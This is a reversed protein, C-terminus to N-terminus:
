EARVARRSNEFSSIHPMFGKPYLEVCSRRHRRKNGSFREIDREGSLLFRFFNVGKYRCTQYISLLVLFDVLGSETLTGVTRKRYYAFQKVANEANNNNWPVGDYRLFTFLKERHRVLRDRLSVAANSRYSRTEIAGFFQRVGREHKLLRRRKLGHEDVTAVIERLLVGFPQTISRLEDDYPHHLLDNNIDRILHILCKQQPCQFADYGSYFDSVLVGSFGALSDKLFESERNPRHMYVVEELNAPVWVYAKGSRLKVETEDVHVVVGSQIRSLLGRYTSRYYRSMLQKIMLIENDHVHIGFFERIMEEITAASLRHAVHQYMAWSKLGHRHKDLREYQTPVFVSHCARCQHLKARYDIVKRRIGGPTIVLDFVRKKRPKKTGRETSVDKGRVLDTSKCTPCRSCQLEIAQSARLRRNVHKRYHKRATAVSRRIPGSTRVYVHERQYDFYACKNVQAYDPHVFNVEGWTRTGALRDLTEVHTVPLTNDATNPLEMGARCTGIFDTVRKLALCDELNYRILKQKWQEDRGTEWERRWVISQLGSANKETWVCGLCAGVDKLGNSYCPFYFHSYVISLTNELMSIARDVQRKRGRVRNRMRKLFAKEYSGYCFLRFDEYQGIVDLFQMFIHSEQEKNDAWFSHRVESAGDVVIAGILYVYGDDPLSEVDFYVNVRALTLDPTGFVYITQDRIAMAQLEHYRRKSRQVRRGKRRPRFTYALQTLNFIGKRNLRSIEKEGLSRLLSLSDEEVAQQHCRQRFRCHACHNNLLLKPASDADQLDMLEDALQRAGGDDSPLRVTTSRCERGYYFVGKKLSRGQLDALLFAYLELLRRQETRIGSVGLCLVPVYHFEGLQSRGPTRKLADITLTFHETELTTGVLIASGQRLLSRSLIGGHVVRNAPQRALIKETANRVVDVRVQEILAEYDNPSHSEGTLLLHGRRRCDLYSEVISRTIKSSM